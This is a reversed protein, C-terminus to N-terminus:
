FWAGKLRRGYGLACHSGLLKGALCRKGDGWPLRTNERRACHCFRVLQWVPRLCEGTVGDQSEQSDPGPKEVGGGLEM